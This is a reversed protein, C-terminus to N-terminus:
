SNWEDWHHLRHCNACIIKCKKVEDEIDSLSYHNFSNISLGFKKSKPDVHHFDFIVTNTSDHILGCESCRGGAQDVFKSRLAHSRKTRYRYRQQRNRHNWERKYQQPDDYKRNNHGNVYKKDRGYKDKSKIEEGCGCACPIVPAEDHIKKYRRQKATLGNEDIKKLIIEGKIPVVLHTVM